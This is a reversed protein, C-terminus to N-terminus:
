SEATYTDVEELCGCPKHTIQVPSSQVPVKHLLCSTQMLFVAPSFRKLNMVGGSFSRVDGSFYHNSSLGKKPGRKLPVNTLKEPASDPVNWCVFLESKSCYKSTGPLQYITLLHTIFGIYGM